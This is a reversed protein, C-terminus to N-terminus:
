SALGLLKLKLLCHFGREDMSLPRSEMAVYLNIILENDVLIQLKNNGILKNSWSSLAKATATLKAALQKSPNVICPTSAWAGEATELFGDAKPWFSEFRFRKGSNLQLALNLLLLCHDSATTSMASLFSSTFDV